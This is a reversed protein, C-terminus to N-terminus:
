KSSNNLLIDQQGAEGTYLIEQRNDEDDQYVGSVVVSVAFQLPCAM